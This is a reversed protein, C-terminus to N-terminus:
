RATVVQAPSGAHGSHGATSLSVETTGGVLEEVQDAGVPVQEPRLELRDDIGGPGWRWCVRRGAWTSGIAGASAFRAAAPCSCPVVDITGSGLADM